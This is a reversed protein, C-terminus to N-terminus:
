HQGALEPRDDLTHRLIEQAIPNMGDPGIV